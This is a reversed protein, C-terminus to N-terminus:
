MLIYKLRQGVHADRSTVRGVRSFCVLNEQPQTRRPRGPVRCYSINKRTGQIAKM